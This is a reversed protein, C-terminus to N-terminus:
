GNDDKEEEALEPLMMPIGEEIRYVRGCKKCKLSGKIIEGNEIDIKLELEGLCVPCRLIDLLDRKM